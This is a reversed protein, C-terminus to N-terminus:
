LKCWTVEIANQQDFCTVRDPLIWLTFFCVGGRSPLHFPTPHPFCSENPGNYLSRPCGPSPRHQSHMPSYSVTGTRLSSLHSLYYTSQLHNTFALNPTVFMQLNPVKEGKNICCLTQSFFFFWQNERSIFPHHWAPASFISAKEEWFILLSRPVKLVYIRWESKERWLNTKKEEGLLHANVKRNEPM